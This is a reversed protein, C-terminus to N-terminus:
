VASLVAPASPTGTDDMDLSQTEIIRDAILPYSLVFYHPKMRGVVEISVIRSGEVTVEVAMPKLGLGEGRYTGDPVLTIDIGEEYDLFAKAISETM